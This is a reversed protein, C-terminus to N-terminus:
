KQQTTTQTSKKEPDEFKFEFENEFVRRMDTKTVRSMLDVLQGDNLRRDPWKQMERFLKIYFDDGYRRHLESLIYYSHNYAEIELGDPLMNGERRHAAWKQLLNVGAENILPEKRRRNNGELFDNEIMTAIGEMFWPPAFKGVYAYDLLHTVEHILTSVEAASKPSFHATPKNGYDPDASTAYAPTTFGGSFVQGVQKSIVVNVPEKVVYGLTNKLHIYYTELQLILGKGYSVRDQLSAFQRLADLERKLYLTFHPSSFQHADQSINIQVRPVAFTTKRKTREPANVMSAPQMCGALLFAGALLAAWRFKKLM